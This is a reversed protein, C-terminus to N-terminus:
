LQSGNRAPYPNTTAGEAASMIMSLCKQFVGSTFEDTSGSRVNGRREGLDVGAVAIKGTRAEMVVQGGNQLPGRSEAAASEGAVHGVMLGRTAGSFRGDTILAVFNGLGFGVVASTVRLMQMMGPDGPPGLFRIIVPDGASVHGGMAADLTRREGDFTRTPGSHSHRHGYSM